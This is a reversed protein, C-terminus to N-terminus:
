NSKLVQEGGQRRDDTGLSHGFEHEVKQAGREILLAADALDNENTINYRDFVSRTKHGSLKMAVKESVGRRIMNRVASRRLDHFLLAEFGARACLAAWAGRFDLVPKDGRSLVFDDRNKGVLSARLLEYVEHTMKVIRGDKNKTTGPNLMITCNLLDVQNVKLRLLESKRFGFTYGLALATRLWLARRRL